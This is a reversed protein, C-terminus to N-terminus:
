RASTMVPAEVWLPPQPPRTVSWWGGRVEWVDIEAGAPVTRRLAGGPADYCAVPGTTVFRFPPVLLGPWPRATVTVREPSVIVISQGPDLEIEPLEPTDAM